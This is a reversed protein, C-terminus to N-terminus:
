IPGLRTISETVRQSVRQAINSETDVINFTNNVTAGGGKYGIAGFDPGSGRPNQKTGGVVPGYYRGQDWAQQTSARGSDSLDPTITGTMTGQGKGVLAMADSFSLAVQAIAADMAELKPTVATGITEAMLVLDSRWAQTPIDVEHFKKDIKFILGDMPDLSKSNLERIDADLKAAAADVAAMGDGWIVGVTAAKEQAATLERVRPTHKEVAKTAGDTAVVTAATKQNLGDLLRTLNETGTGTGTLSAALDKANAIMFDWNSMGAKQANFLVNFGEAVPGMLNAAMMSLSKTTRKIAEDAEDLSNVTDVSMVENHRKWTAITEEIGESAGAMSMGLRSGFIEASTDDRMGGQLKSLGGMITLFLEEGDLDRVDELSLGMKELSKEISEDGNAIKRSLTYLSKGLTDADVGFESMAGALVQLEEVNIHTQQALDKLASAEDVTGKVFNFAARATFMAAFGAALGKVTGIMTGTAKEAGKMESAINAIGPPVDQGLAKLKAMAEAGTAGMRALEKETFASAGGARQFVEAMLTAESIIKKGSFSDSMRNLQSEVKASGTEFSTLSVVASETAAKFSTFDALLTGTLAM